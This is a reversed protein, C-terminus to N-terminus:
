EGGTSINNSNRGFGRRQNSSCSSHRSSNGRNLSKGAMCCRPTLQKGEVIVDSNVKQSTMYQHNSSQHSIVDDDDVREDCSSSSLSLSVDDDDEQVKPSKKAEKKFIKKWSKKLFGKEKNHTKGKELVKKKQKPQQPKYVPTKHQLTMPQKPNDYHLPNKHDDRLPPYVQLIGGGYDNRRSSPGGYTNSHHNFHSSSAARRRRHASHHPRGPHRGGTTAGPVHDTVHGASHSNGHRYNDHYRHDSHHNRANASQGFNRCSSCQADSNDQHHYNGHRRHPRRQSGGCNGSSSSSSRHRRSNRQRPNKKLNQQLTQADGGLVLDDSKFSSLEDNDNNRAMNRSNLKMSQMKTFYQNQAANMQQSAANAQMNAASTQQMQEKQQMQQVQIMSNPPMFSNNDQQKAVPMAQSICDNLLATDDFLSSLSSNSSLNAPTDEVQFNFVKDNLPTRSSPFEMPNFSSERSKDQERSKEM